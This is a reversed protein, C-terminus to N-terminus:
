KETMLARMKEANPAMVVGKETVIADILEAPTIDFAPNWAQAGHPATPTGAFQLVEQADRNEIPIAAGDATALDVTSTPAVVMFKVGHYRAALATMYTGIKNATDANAAIRDAGVIVWRVAGQKLLHACAGDAILTVPIGEQVLEWATLRAGQLWPRTEDAFVSKIKGAAFGARVVGLATGYGGTALAGTNCHTLVESGPEILAAGLEGMRRNAAIDEAHIRQAESLLRPVPDGPIGARIVDRMRAVAWRLNVATPRATALLELDAEIAAPWNSPDAQFRARAALVVAYAGTIGIAPAGRVVMDTIARAAAEVSAINLIELRGPLLRQDILKLGSDAWEVARIRDYPIDSAQATTKL